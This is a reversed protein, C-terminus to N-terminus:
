HWRFGAVMVLLCSRQLELPFSGRHGAIDRALSDPYNTWGLPYSDSEFHKTAKSSRVTVKILYGCCDKLKTLGANTVRLRLYKVEGKGTIGQANALKADVPGYSGAEESLEVKIIPRKWWNWAVGIVVAASISSTFWGFVNPYTEPLAKLTNLLTEM